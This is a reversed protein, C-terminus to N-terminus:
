CGSIKLDVVAQYQTRTDAKLYENCMLGNMCEVYTNAAICKKSADAGAETYEMNYTATCTAFHARSASCTIAPCNLSQHRFVTSRISLTLTENETEVGVDCKAARACMILDESAECKEANGVHNAMQTVYSDACANLNDSCTTGAAIKCSSSQAIIMASEWVSSLKADDVDKTVDCASTMSCQQFMAKVASNLFYIKLTSACKVTPDDNNNYAATQTEMCSDAAQICACSLEEYVQSYIARALGKMKAGDETACVAQDVCTWLDAASRSLNSVSICVM